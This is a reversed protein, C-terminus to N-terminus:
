QVSPYSTTSTETPSSIETMENEDDGSESSDSDINVCNNEAVQYRKNDPVISGNIELLKGVCVGKRMAKTRKDKLYPANDIDIFLELIQYKDYTSINQGGLLEDNTADKKVIKDVRVLWKKLEDRIAKLTVKKEGFEPKWM